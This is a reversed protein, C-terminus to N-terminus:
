EIGGFAATRICIHRCIRIDLVLIERVSWRWLILCTLAFPLLAGLSYLACKIAFSKRIFPRRRLESFTLYLGCFVIFFVGHQKMLFSVGVLVGAVAVSWYKERKIGHVLFLIGCLAAVIVFHEANAFIGQVGKGLSLLAFFAATCAGAFQGFLEKALLFLAL